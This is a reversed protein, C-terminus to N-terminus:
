ARRLAPGRSSPDPEAELRSIETTATGPAIGAPLDRRGRQSITTLCRNTAIKYLWARVYGREDFRGISRWARVLSEQVADDADHLSGLMRYCYAQLEGRYPGVLQEFAGADGARAAALLEAPETMGGNQRDRHIQATARTGGTLVTLSLVPMVSSCCIRSRISRRAAGTSSPSRGTTRASWAGSMTINSTGGGSCPTRPM